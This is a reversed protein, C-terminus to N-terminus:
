RESDPASNMWRFVPRMPLIWLVGAVIYFVLQLWGPAGTMQSGITAAAVIWGIMIAFLIFIAVIKRSSATM